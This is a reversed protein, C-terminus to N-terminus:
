AKRWHAEYSFPKGCEKCPANSHRDPEKGEEGVFPHPKIGAEALKSCDGQVMGLRSDSYFM